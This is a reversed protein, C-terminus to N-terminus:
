SRNRNFKNPLAPPPPQGIPTTQVPTIDSPGIKAMMLKELHQFSQLLQNNQKQTNEQMALSDAYAQELALFQAERSNPVNPQTPNM